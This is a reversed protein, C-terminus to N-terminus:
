LLVINKIQGAFFTKLEPWSFDVLMMPDPDAEADVFYTLSKLIHFLNIRDRGYKQRYLDLFDKLPTSTRTLIFYLDVFDRKRGRSAIAEIKMCGIDELSAVSVAQFPLGPKLLPYAYAFFGVKTSGFTGVWTAADSYDASADGMRRLEREIEAPEFEKLSFFDLDRSVRHGLHLACGTGGALYFNRRSPWEGMLNLAESTEPALVAEFM